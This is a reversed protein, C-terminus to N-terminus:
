EFLKGNQYLQRVNKSLVDAMYGLDAAELVAMAEAPISAGSKGADEILWRTMEESFGKELDVIRLKGENMPCGSQCRMCGILCNHTQPDLWAPFPGSNENFHTICSGAQVTFRDEVLAETPCDSVCIGCTLCPSALSDEDFGRRLFIQYRGDSADAPEDTLYCRLRVYSGFGEVYALNNRGYEALGMAVALTKFPARIPTAHGFAAEVARDASAIAEDTMAYTPPILASGPKGDLSFHMRYTPVAIAALVVNGCESGLEALNKQSSLYLDFVEPDISTQMSRIRDIAADVLKSPGWAFRVGPVGLLAELRAM